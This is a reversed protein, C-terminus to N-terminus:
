LMDIVTKCYKVIYTYETPLDICLGEKYKRITVQGQINTNLSCEVLNYLDTYHIEINWNGDGEKDWGLEENTRSIDILPGLERNNHFVYTAVAIVKGHSKNIIFWLRDGTRADKRFMLNRNHSKFGWIQYKSSNKFNIGSGVRFLWDNTM